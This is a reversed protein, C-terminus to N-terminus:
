RKRSRNVSNRQRVEKLWGAVIAPLRNVVERGFLVEDVYGMHLLDILRCLYSKGKVWWTYHADAILYHKVTIGEQQRLEEIEMGDLLSEYVGDSVRSGFTTTYYYEKIEWVAVPNVVSPFAGDLRRAFTRLLVDERSITTLSRPDYDCPFGAANAEILMNVIGTLYAPRKKEKSQKNMPMPCSSRLEDRLREFLQKATEADMLNPEVTNNLVNARYSFYSQLLLGLKTPKGDDDVVHKSHLEVKQLAAAMEVVSPVHIIGKGRATYGVSQSITRVYAWFTKPQKLFRRNPKM